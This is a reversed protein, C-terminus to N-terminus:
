HPAVVLSAAALANEVDRATITMFKIDRSRELAGQQRRILDVDPLQSKHFDISDPGLYFVAAGRTDPRWMLYRPGKIGTKPQPILGLEVLGDYVSRTNIEDRAM